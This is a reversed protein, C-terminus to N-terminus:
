DVIDIPPLDFLHLAAIADNRSGDGRWDAAEMQALSRRGFIMRLVEYPTVALTLAPTGVGLRATRDGLDLRLAPAGLSTYRADFSELAITALADAVSDRAGMVGAAARIDQEHTWTDFAVFAMARGAAAVRADLEPGRAAWETCVEDLTASSREALQASTWEPTGANDLVGDLVNACVGTLHRYGDVFVWPPTPSLPADHVAPDATSALALLRTRATTYVDAPEVRCLTACCCASTEGLAGAPLTM